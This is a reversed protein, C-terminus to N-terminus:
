QDDLTKIVKQTKKHDECFYPPLEKNGRFAEVEEPTFEIGIKVIKRCTSCLIAGQGGNYKIIASQRM